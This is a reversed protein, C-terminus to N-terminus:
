VAVIEVWTQMTTYAATYPYQTTCAATHPTHHSKNRAPHATTYTYPTTSRPRVHACELAFKGDDHGDCGAYGAYSAYGAGDNSWRLRRVQRSTSATTATTAPTYGAGDYGADRRVFEIKRWRPSSAAAEISSM